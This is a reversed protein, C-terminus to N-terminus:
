KQHDRNIDNNNSGDRDNTMALSPQGGENATNDNGIKVSSGRQTQILRKVKDKCPCERCTPCELAAQAIEVCLEIKATIQELSHKM